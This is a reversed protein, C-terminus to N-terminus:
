CWTIKFLAADEAKEFCYLAHISTIAASATGQYMGKCNDNLWDPILSQLNGEKDVMISESFQNVDLVVLAEPKFVLLRIAKELDGEEYDRESWQSPKCGYYENLVQSLTKM